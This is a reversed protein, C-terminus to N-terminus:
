TVRGILAVRATWYAAHKALKLTPRAEYQVNYNASDEPWQYVFVTAKDGTYHSELSDKETDTLPALVLDFRYTTESNLVRGRISGDDAYDIIKRDDPTRLSEMHHDFTPFTAM